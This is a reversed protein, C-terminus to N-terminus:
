DSSDKEDSAPTETKTATEASSSTPSSATATSASASGSIVSAPKAAKASNRDQIFKWIFYVAIVVIAILLLFRVPLWIWSAIRTSLWGVGQLVFGLVWLLGTGIALAIIGFIALEVIEQFSRNMDDILIDTFKNV